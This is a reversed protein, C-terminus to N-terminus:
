EMIFKFEENGLKISMGSQIEYKQQPILVEGNIFTKNTSNLDIVYYRGYENIFAAHRRSIAQNDTISYDNENTDKGIKICARDFSIKEGTRVRVVCPKNQEIPNYLAFSKDMDTKEQKKEEKFTLEEVFKIELLDLVYQELEFLSFNAGSNIVDIYRQIYTRDDESPSFVCYKLVDSLFMRMSYINEYPQIPVYTFYLSQSVPDVMIADFDLLLLEVNLYNDKIQKIGDIFEKLMKAFTRKNLPIALYNKLSVFGTVNYLLKFSNNKKEVEMKLLRSVDGNNISYIERENLHQGKKSKIVIHSNNKKRVLKYKNM